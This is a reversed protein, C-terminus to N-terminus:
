RGRDMLRTVVELPETGDAMAVLGAILPTEVGLAQAKSLLVRALQIPGDQSTQGTIVASGAKYSVHEPNAQVAVLDGVGSLGLLTEPQAGLARAMAVGEFLGGTLVNAYLGVGAGPLSRIVGVLSALVPVLASALQVGILDHTPYVRYRTSDLAEIVQECIENWPSAILGACLGGNLIEDVPAPGALAGIRAVKCEQEVVESLWLGTEPEVGRGAVILHNDPTPKALRLANRLESASTAAILLECAASVEPPKNTSPLIHPPRKGQYAIFPEHGAAITLRALAQGWRGGGLIGVRM